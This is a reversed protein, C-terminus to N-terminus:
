ESPQVKKLSFNAIVRFILTSIIIIACIMTIPPMGGHWKDATIWSDAGVFSAHVFILAYAFYGIRQFLRWREKSLKKAVDYISTIAPFLFLMFAIIGLGIIIQGRISFDGNIEFFQPLLDQKIIRLGFFVHLCMFYFGSLGFYRKFLKHNIAFLNGTKSLSSLMYSSFVSMVAAGALAKNIIFTANIAFDLGKFHIYRFYAYIFIMIFYSISIATAIRKSQQTTQM